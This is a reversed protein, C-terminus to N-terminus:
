IPLDEYAERAAKTARGIAKMERQQLMSKALSKSSTSQPCSCVGIAKLIGKPRKPDGYIAVTM